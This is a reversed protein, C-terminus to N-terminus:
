KIDALLEDLNGLAATFGPEFGLELIKNLDAESAFTLESIIKSGNATKFFMNNWFMGPFDYTREGKDNCFFDEATFSKNPEVKFFILGYGRNTVMLVLWQM